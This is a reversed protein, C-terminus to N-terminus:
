PFLIRGDVTIQNGAGIGWATSSFDGFGDVSVVIAESFPSVYFASSLHAFHHEINHFTGRLKHGPFAQALLDPIKQRERRNRIRDFVLGLNPANTLVYRLKSLLNARSDQNIAVHNVNEITVGAERLCYAISHSPFGAWHKIRRFREEEVAAVLVGDRVIAAASDAHFANIGLIIM